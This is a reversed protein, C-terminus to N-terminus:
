RERITSSGLLLTITFHTKLSVNFFLNDSSYGFFVWRNKQSNTKKSSQSPNKRYQLQSHM